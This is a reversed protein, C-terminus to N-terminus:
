SDDGSANEYKSIRGICLINIIIFLKKKKRKLNCGCCRNAWPNHVFQVFAGTPQKNRGSLWKLSVEKNKRIASNAILSAHM